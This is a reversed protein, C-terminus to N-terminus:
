LSAQNCLLNGVGSNVIYRAGSTPISGVVDENVALREVMSSSRIVSEM